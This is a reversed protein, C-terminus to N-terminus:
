EESQLIKPDIKSSTSTHVTTIEVLDLNRSILDMDVVGETVYLFGIVDARSLYDSYVDGKKNGIVDANFVLKYYTTIKTTVNGEQKTDM